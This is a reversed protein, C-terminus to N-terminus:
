RKGGDNKGNVTPGSVVADMGPLHPFGQFNHHNSFKTQCTKFSKDCGVILQIESSVSLEIERELELQSNEHANIRIERGDSLKIVGNSFWGSPFMSLDDVRYRDLSLVEIVVANANFSSHTLDVGCRSGGLAVDCQRTYVRGIRRELRSKLSVLEARFQRDSYSVEGLYGSWLHFRFEPSQWDVRWVQVEAGDWLGSALDHENVFGASLAGDGEVAGPALGANSVFELNNLSQDPLYNVGDFELEKDHNTAGYIRGDQRTFKWCLCTTATGSKLRAAFEDQIIKM